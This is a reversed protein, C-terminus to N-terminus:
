ACLSRSVERSLSMEVSFLNSSPESMISKSATSIVFITPSMMLSVASSLSSCLIPNWQRLADHHLSVATQEITHETIKRIIGNGIGTVPCGDRQLTLFYAVLPVKDESIITLTHRLLMEGAEEFAEVTHILSPASFHTARPQAKGDHLIGHQQM